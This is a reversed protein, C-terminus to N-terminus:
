EGVSYTICGLIYTTLNLDTREFNIGVYIM